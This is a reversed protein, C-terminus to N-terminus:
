LIDMLNLPPYGEWLPLPIPPSKLAAPLRKLGRKLVKPLVAKFAACEFVPFIIPIASLYCAILLAIFKVASAIRPFSKFSLRCFSTPAVLCVTPFTTSPMPEIVLFRLAGAILGGLFFFTFRTLTLVNAEFFAVLPNVDYM